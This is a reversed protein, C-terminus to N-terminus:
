DAREYARRLREAHKGSLGPNTYPQTGSMPGDTFEFDDLRKNQEALLYALEMDGMRLFCFPRSSRMLKSLLKAQAWRAEFGDQKSGFASGSPPPCTQLLEEYYTM